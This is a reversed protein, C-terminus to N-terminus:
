ASRAAHQNPISVYHDTEAADKKLTLAAYIPASGEDLVVVSSVSGYPTGEIVNPLSNEFPSKALIDDRLNVIRKMAKLIASDRVRSMGSDVIAQCVKKSSNQHHELKRDYRKMKMDCIKISLLLADHLLDRKEKPAKEFATRASAIMEQQEKIENLLNALQSSRKELEDVAEKVMQINDKKASKFLKEAFAKAKPEKIRHTAEQMETIPLVSTDAVMRIYPNVRDITTAEDYVVMLDRASNVRMTLHTYIEYLRKKLKPNTEGNLRVLVEKQHKELEKIMSGARKSFEASSLDHNKHQLKTLEVLDKYIRGAVKTVPKPKNSSFISM